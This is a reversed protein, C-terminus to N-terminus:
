QLCAVTMQRGAVSGQRRYSCFSHDCITCVSYQVQFASPQVGVSELLLQNYRPLDLFLKTDRRQIVQDILDVEEIKELMDEGIEYCCVKASPGFFVTVEEIKTGYTEVMVDFAKLVINKFSGRWGAHIVAVAAHTSDYIVVPMCDATMVGLGIHHEKTVLYDAEIAFSRTNQAQEHSTILIGQTEHVQHPFVLQQAQILKQLQAYVPFNFLNTNPPFNLYEAPFLKDQADGFYIRLGPETHMLM